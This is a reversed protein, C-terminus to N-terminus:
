THLTSVRPVGPQLLEGVACELVPVEASPGVAAVGGLLFGCVRGRLLAPGLVQPNGAAGPFSVAM